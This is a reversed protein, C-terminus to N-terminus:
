MPTLEIEVITFWTHQQFLSFITWRLCMICTSITIHVRAIIGYIYYNDIVKLCIDFTCLIQFIFSSIDLIKVNFKKVHKNHCELLSM